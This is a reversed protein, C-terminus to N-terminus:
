YALYSLVVNLWNLATKHPSQLCIMYHRLFILGSTVRFCQDIRTKIYIDGSASSDTGLCEARFRCNLYGPKLYHDCGLHDANEEWKVQSFSITRM